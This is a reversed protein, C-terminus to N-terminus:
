PQVSKPTELIPPTPDECYFVYNHINAHYEFENGNSELIILHGPTQVQTYSIGPQPCGLSTDAWFVEKTEILNIQSISIALRQALDEKAKEILMQLGPVAPIPLSPNTETEIEQTPVFPLAQTETMEVTEAFPHTPTERANPAAIQNCGALLFALYGVLPIRFLNAKM